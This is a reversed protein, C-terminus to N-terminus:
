PDDRAPAVPLPVSPDGFLMFKMGQFFVSAPYWDETPAITALGEKDYYYALAAAWCDGLRPAQGHATPTRALAHVFGEALTLACPQSGTNCGIYAVAGVPGDRLLREGLGTKNFVGRAYCAPPPPPATFVEGDNTGKHITGDADEYAEYPPLTAFRATSCGASIMVPTRTTNAMEAITGTSLCEAWVDDSGHGAHIMLGVGAHLLGLIEAPTPPPTSALATGDNYYRKQVTWGAPMASAWTDMRGRADVWGGVMIFAATPPILGGDVAREYAMTKEAVIRLQEPTSVPWRGLAVDPHYDVADYNIPDSKNKEGRVEGFYRAHFGDKAANWDDFTGDPRALDAYYLDSPYFAYDFAPATVRDLAMYRVPMIDADGVLLVYRVRGARWCDYLFRKLREPDDAGPAGDMADELVALEVPLRHRKFTVFEALSAQFARPAVILLGQDAAAHAAAILIACASGLCPTM